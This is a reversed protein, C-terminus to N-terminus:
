IYVSVCVFIGKNVVLIYGYGDIRYYYVKYKHQRSWLYCQKKWYVNSHNGNSSDGECQVSLSFVSYLASRYIQFTSYFGPQKRLQHLNPTAGNIKISSQM